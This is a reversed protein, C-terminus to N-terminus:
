LVFCRMGDVDIVGCGGDHIAQEVSERYEEFTASRIFEGTEYAYLGCDDRSFVFIGKEDGCIRYEM